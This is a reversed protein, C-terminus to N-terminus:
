VEKPLLFELDSRLSQPNGPQPVISDPQIWRSLYPDYYRAKYDYLGIASEWRQGTYRLTGTVVDTTCQSGYPFYLQQTTTVGTTESTSGLHDAHLYTLGGPTRMAVRQGGFYYHRVWTTYGTDSEFYDDLYLRTEASMERVVRQGQGDYSLTADTLGDVAVLRNVEKV